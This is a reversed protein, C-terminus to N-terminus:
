ARERGDSVKDISVRGRMVSVVSKIGKEKLTKTDTASNYNGVWLNPVIEDM